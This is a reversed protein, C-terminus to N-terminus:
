KNVVKYKGATSATTTTAGATRRTKETATAALGATRRTKVEEPAADEEKSMQNLKIMNDINSNTRKSIADRKRVDPIELRVALDKMMDIVGDPGFDLCDMFTDMDNGLLLEKIEKETYNYEPEVEHLLEEVLEKDDIKLYDKILVHGGPTWDLKRIEDAPVRKTEGYAFHRQLNNMDPIMYGVSGRSRNTVNVMKINEM